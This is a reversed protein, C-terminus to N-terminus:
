SPLSRPACFAVWQNWAEEDRQERAARASHGRVRAQLKVAADAEAEKDVGSASAM